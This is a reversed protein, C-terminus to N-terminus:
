FRCRWVMLGNWWTPHGNYATKVDFLLEYDKDSDRVFDLTAQRPEDWNTDDVLVICGPAFFPEAVKLGQLQNAYSHEGDYLYAGLLGQHHDRFYDQYDMEHFEHHPGRFQHFRKLFEDKPGGFQSFNDIGVCHKDHNDLLSSLFTFGHWVGVNVFCQDAPMEAVIRQLTAHVAMTSMRPVGELRLFRERIREQDQRFRTNRFDLETGERDWLHESLPTDPQLWDFQVSGLFDQLSEVPRTDPPAQQAELFGLVQRRSSDLQFALSVSLMRQLEDVLESKLGCHWYEQALKYRAPMFTPIGAAAKQLAPLREPHGQPLTLALRFWTLGMDDRHELARRCFEETRLPLLQSLLDEVLWRASAERRAPEREWLVHFPEADRPYFSLPEFAAERAQLLVEIAREKHFAKLLSRALNLHAVLGLSQARSFNSIADEFFQFRDDSGLKHGIQAEVCGRQNRVKLDQPREFVALHTAAYAQVPLSGRNFTACYYDLLSERSRKRPRGEALIAQVKDLLRKGQAAYTFQQIHEYGARALASREEEHSLYYRLKEVLNGFNYYVCHKGDVLYDRAGRNSEECFLLSGCAPAEFCRMSMESRLAHNITIRSRNLMWVYEQGQIGNFYKVQYEGGLGEAATVLARARQDHLISHLEGVHSVDYLPEEPPLLRHLEPNFGYLPAEFVTPGEVGKLWDCGMGDTAVIDFKRAVDVLPDTIIHWDSIQAMTPYPCRDIDALVPQFEPFWWIVLDPKWGRPLQMLIDRFTSKGWQFQLGGKGESFTILDEHELGKRWNATFHTWNDPGALIKM